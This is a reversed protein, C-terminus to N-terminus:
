CSVNLSFVMTPELLKELLANRSTEWSRMGPPIGPVHEQPTDLFAFNLFSFNDLVENFPSFCIKLSNKTLPPVTHFSLCKVSGGTIKKFNAKVYLQQFHKM